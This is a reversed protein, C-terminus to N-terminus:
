SFLLVEVFILPTKVFILLFRLGQLALGMFYNFVSWCNMQQQRSIAQTHKIM